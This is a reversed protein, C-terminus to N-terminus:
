IDDINLDELITNKAVGRNFIIVNEPEKEKEKEESESSEDSGEEESGDKGSRDFEYGGGVGQEPMPIDGRKEVHTMWEPIVGDQVLEYAQQDTLITEIRFHTSPEFKTADFGEGVYIAIVTTSNIPTAGKRGFVPPIQVKIEVQGKRSDILAAVHGMGEHKVVRAFIVGSQNSLIKSARMTAIKARKDGSIRGKKSHGMIAKTTSSVFTDPFADIKPM